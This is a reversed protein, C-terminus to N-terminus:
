MEVLPLFVAPITIRVSQEETSATTIISDICTDTAHLVVDLWRKFSFMMELYTPLYTSTLCCNLQRPFNLLRQAQRHTRGAGGMEGAGDSVIRVGVQVLQHREQESIHILLVALLQLQGSCEEGRHKLQVTACMCHYFDTPIATLVTRHALIQTKTVLTKGQLFSC